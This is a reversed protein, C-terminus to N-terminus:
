EKNAISFPLLWFSSVIILYYFINTDSDVCCVSIILVIFAIASITKLIINKMKRGRKNKM